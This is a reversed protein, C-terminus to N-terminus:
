VHSLSNPPAPPDGCFCCLQGSFLYRQLQWLWPRMSTLLFALAPDQKKKKKLAPTENSCNNFTDKLSSYLVAVRGLLDYFLNHGQWGSSCLFLLSNTACLTIAAINFCHHPLWSGPASLCPLLCLKNVLYEEKSTCFKCSLRM